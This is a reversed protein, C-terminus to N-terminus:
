FLLRMEKLSQHITGKISTFIERTKEIDGQLAYDQGGDATLLVSYLSQSLSDHLERALRQRERDVEAM